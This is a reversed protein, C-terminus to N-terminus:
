EHTDGKKYYSAQISFMEAYKGGKEMLEEHTGEEAICHKDLFLIRDCFRTSALRHSIYISTKGQTLRAYHRYMENEAIPDLAATPEDLIILPSDKYLARALALKQQEGGSLEIATDHVQRVLLTDMGDPLTRVKDELGALRLCEAARERSTHEPPKQSVNGAISAALFHIDQFVATVLSFYDDRNYRAIDRGALLIRGSTPRYLGAILKVLTTKGAGNVGVVAIREGPKITVNIHELAPSDAAFYTYSLDELRLEPARDAPPLPAGPGTNSVDSLDLMVRLDGLESSARLLDSTRSVLGSIWQALSGIAAFIMVFDGLGIRSGLLLYVLYAYAAGNRVLVLFAEALGAGAQRAALASEGNQVEVTFRDCNMRFWGSMTYMRIDKGLSKDMLANVLYRLKVIAKTHEDRTNEEYRRVLSLAIWNILASFALLLVIGPNVLSILGGYLALGFLNVLIGSLDRPLNNAPTHNSNLAKEAKDFITKNAGSELLEYDMSIRKGTALHSFAFISNSGIDNDIKHDTYSKLYNLLVLLLALGGAVACFRGADVRATLEDIIIKSTLIGTFPLAVRMVTGTLGLVVLSKRTRWTTKLSFAINSLVTYPEKKRKM